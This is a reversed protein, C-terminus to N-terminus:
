DSCRVAINDAATRGAHNRLRSRLSIRLPAPSNRAIEIFRQVAASPENRRSVLVLEWRGSVHRASARHHQPYQRDLSLLHAGIAAIWGFIAGIRVCLDTRAM